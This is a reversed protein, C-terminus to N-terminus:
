ETVRRDVSNGITTDAPLDTTAAPALATLTSSTFGDTAQLAVPGVLTVASGVQNISPTNEVQFIAEAPPGTIGTTAPIVPITWTVLGNAANCAPATAVNSKTVGTCTTGSQLSASVTVNDADTAYNTIVWHVTYQTAQNVKPPYPGSNLIGSAADRWYAPAALSIEGGVMNQIDAASVTSSAQTGPPVTASSIRAAVKLTYNGDGPQKIPYATKTKLQFSVTGSQGPALNSLQPVNAAYWTVTDTISNFSGQTQMTALNFMDGVLAANLSINEFTVNSNNTYTLVYDLVDGLGAIYNPTGNLAVALMLPSTVVTLSGTQQNLTYTSGMVSGTLTGNLAYIANPPGVVNGTITM